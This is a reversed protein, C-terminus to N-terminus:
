NQHDKWHYGEEESTRQIEAMTAGTNLVAGLAFGVFFAVVIIASWILWTPM